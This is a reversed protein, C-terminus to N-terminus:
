ALIANLSEIHNKKESVIIVKDGKRICSNGGPIILEDGRIVSAIIVNKKLKFDAEKFLVDLKKFDDKATFQLAEAKGEAISFYKEIDNPADGVECNHVFRILKNVSIEPPSLTIDLNIRHLLKLHGPADIKTLISPVNRSWAYMSTVLNTEDADTLSVVADMSSIKEDELVEGMEGSGYSVKIEPYKEMLLRCRELDSEIVTITKKEKLLMDILYDATVDGGVIMVKKASHKVLGMKQLIDIVDEKKVAVSIRDGAEIVFKGDPVFLKGERLVTGILIEADFRKRIDILSQGSIGSEDSVTLTLMQVRGAFVGDPKVFGPLGISRAAEDAMDYKPNFIYDIGQEKELTKREAAFDPQFVRAVTRLTGVARAQMCSLLNIEDVPTLAILIDATDAGAKYLTDKSAGSGVVGSVNYRDTINEVLERSKDIITIDYNKASLAEILSCGTRGAGVIIIKM